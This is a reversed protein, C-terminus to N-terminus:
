EIDRPPLCFASFNYFVNRDVVEKWGINARSLFEMTDANEQLHRRM